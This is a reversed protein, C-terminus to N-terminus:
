DGLGVYRELVTEALDSIQDADPFAMGGVAATTQIMATGQLWYFQHMVLDVDDITGTIEVAASDDGLSPGSMMKYEFENGADDEDKTCTELVEVMKDFNARADDPTAYRDIASKVLFLSIGEVKQFQSGVMDTPKRPPAYDCYYNRDKPDDEFSTFGAEPMDRLTLLVSELEAPRYTDTAPGASESPGSPERTTAAPAQPEAAEQDGDSCATLGLVPVLALSTLLLRM